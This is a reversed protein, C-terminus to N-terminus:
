YCYEQFGSQCMKQNFTQCFPRGTQPDVVQESGGPCEIWPIDDPRPRVGAHVDTRYKLRPLIKVPKTAAM